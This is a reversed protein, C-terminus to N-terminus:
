PLVEVIGAGLAKLAGLSRSQWHFDPSATFEIKYQAQPAMKRVAVIWTVFQKFSSSNMFELQRFDVKVREVGAEEAIAAHKTLQERLENHVRADATGSLALHLHGGNMRADFRLEAFTESTGNFNSSM